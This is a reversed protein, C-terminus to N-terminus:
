GSESRQPKRSSSIDFTLACQKMESAQHLDFPNNGIDRVASETTFVRETAVDKAQVQCRIMAPNTSVCSTGIWGIQHFSNFTALTEDIKSPDIFAEYIPTKVM